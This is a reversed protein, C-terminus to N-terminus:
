FPPDGKYLDKYKDLIDKNIPYDEEKNEQFRCFESKFRLQIDGTAGNRHKAIIIDALGFLSNGKEDEYIHYYEPRHIFCVLDADECLTGSDRLDTLQPKKGEAGIRYKDYEINRNMQSVVIIPINLERALSKLERSIYNIENYRNESYKNVVTLRQVYDIFLIQIGNEIVMAKAKECFEQISLRAPCDIYIPADYLEKIKYDLQEWEYPALQGNKIKEGPIECCNVILRNMIQVDTEGLSFIGISTSHEVAMNRIMSLIFATKGMAPRGSIVILDGNQWGSTIKDLSEFGSHLGSIGDPRNAAVELKQLANKLLDNIHFCNSQSQADINDDVFLNESNNNQAM